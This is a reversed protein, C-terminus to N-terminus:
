KGSRSAPHQGIMRLFEEETVTKIGLQRAKVLKSGPDEGVIVFDTNKSVSSAAKGGLQHILDEIEKRSFNKLTGTVVITKGALPGTPIAKRPETMRIGLEQLERILKRGQPSHLFQYVSEAVVEGIGPLQAIEEGSAELLRNISGFHEALIQANREGVHRIGLGSLVRALGRQKSAELSQIITQAKKSIRQKTGETLIVQSLQEVTLRYFDAISRVLGRDVLAEVVAPGLGEIDMAARSAWFLLREKLQAPCNPNVCRIYVGGEDRVVPERCAPCHTPFHYPKGHGTRKEVEVRVVHPIIKGAKEVVVWDAIRIDKRRIEEANHLSVRSVVTGAIPVPELEAVPTLVGTKGVQVIINKIRTSAQWLEIKYAITWRPAKSTAGLQERQRYDNVKVVFGDTEYELEHRRELQANCWEIIPEIRAFPGAWPVVPLGLERVYHLFEVHNHVPSDATAGESHAFFRLRREACIRPDLLKLSGAAANRPNAFPREGRQKQLENVRNLDANTMYVEGRVELRKPPRHRESRLHLPLGRVTRINHTIDDGTEGDGRTAGLALRGDEYVVAVSVGDIKHEVVFEVKEEGLLRRVRAVFERLEAESYTNEISLMPPDHRVHRFGEIPQGGVKQTPSDPSQFEPYQEELQKLREMLRDFELDSIEPNNEVYYKYNHYEILRRLEEIEKRIAERDATTQRAM